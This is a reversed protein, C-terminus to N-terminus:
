PLRVDVRRDYAWGRPETGTADLEGRSMTKVRGSAVGKGSLYASVAQARSEGLEENYEESGRPDARGVIVVNKDKLWGETMCASLQDLVGRDDATVKASDFDFYAKGGSIGCSAMIQQDIYVQTGQSQSAPEAARPAEAFFYTRRVTAVAPRTPVRAGGLDFRAAIGASVFSSLDKNPMEHGGSRDSDEMLFLNVDAGVYPGIAFDETARVDVGIRAHGLQLGHVFRDRGAGEQNQWLMRYGTGLSLYPDIREYPAVHYTAHIGATGGRVSTTNAAEDDVASEHWGGHWGISWRPDIRYSLDLGFGVGGNVVEGIPRDNGIDGFPQTFGTSVGIELAKKPARVPAQGYQPTRETVVVQNSQQADQAWATSTSAFALASVATFVGTITRM